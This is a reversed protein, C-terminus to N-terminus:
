NGLDLSFGFGSCFDFHCKSDLREKREVGNLRMVVM